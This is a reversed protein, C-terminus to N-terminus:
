RFSGQKSLFYDSNHTSNVDGMASFICYMVLCHICLMYQFSPYVTTERVHVKGSLRKGSLVNGPIVNGPCVNEQVSTERVFAYSEHYITTERVPVKGSLRNRSLVNGSVVNGLCSTSEELFSTERINLSTATYSNVCRVKNRKLPGIAWGTIEHASRWWIKLILIVNIYPLTEKLTRDNKSRELSTAM